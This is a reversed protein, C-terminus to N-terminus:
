STKHLVIGLIDCSVTTNTLPLCLLNQSNFTLRYM